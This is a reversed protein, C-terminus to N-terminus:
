RRKERVPCSHFGDRRGYERARLNIVHRMAALIMGEVGSVGTGFVPTRM